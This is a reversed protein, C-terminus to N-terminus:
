DDELLSPPELKGSAVMDVLRLFSSVCIDGVQDSTLHEKPKAERVWCWAGGMSLEPQYRSESIELPERLYTGREGPLLVAANFERVILPSDDLRNAARPHWSLVLSVRGNTVICASATRGVRAKVSTSSNIEAIRQEVHEFLSVVVQRFAQVGEHSTFLREREAFFAARREVTKAQQLVDLPKLTGGIEQLRTKIAGVAQEIGYEEFNFRLYTKPLWKPPSATRELMVFFLCDWGDALVREKIATEEVRTWPTDGWGDRYLVVILRSDSRFAARFSDLGDTGALSEQHKSYVFVSLYESLRDHLEVALPEDRNLFSIAVDFKYTNTM